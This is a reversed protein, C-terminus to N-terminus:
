KKLKNLGEKIKEKYVGFAFLILVVGLAIFLILLALAIPIWIPSTVWLWSWNIVGTLKLSVLILTIFPLSVSCGSKKNTM